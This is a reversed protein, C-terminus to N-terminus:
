ILTYIYSTQYPAAITFPPVALDINTDIQYDGVSNGPAGNFISMADITSTVTKVSGIGIGGTQGSNVIVSGPTNTFNDAVNIVAGNAQAVFDDVTATLTWGPNSLRTDIVQIPDIDTSTNTVQNSVTISPLTVSEPVNLILLGDSYGFFVDTSQSTYTIFQTQINGGTTSNGPPPSSINLRYTRGHLLGDFCLPTSTSITSAFIVTGDENELDILVGNILTDSGDFIGNASVDQFVVPCLSALYNCRFDQGARVEADSLTLQRLGNAPNLVDCYVKVSITNAKPDSITSFDSSSMEVNTGYDGIDVNATASFDEDVTTQMQYEIYGAANNAFFTNITNSSSLTAGGGLVSCDPTFTANNDISQVFIEKEGSTQNCITRHIYRNGALTLTNTSSLSAGGGLVSCDPTFTSNNDVLNEIIEIETSPFQCITQHLYKNGLTSLSTYDTFGSSTAVSACTPTFISSNNSSQIFVEPNGSIQSCTVIHLFENKGFYFDGTNATDAIEYFGSGPTTTINLGSVQSDNLPVCTDSDILCNKLTGPLYTFESNPLTDNITTNTAVFSSTNAYKLRVTIVDAPAVVINEVEIDNEVYVKNISVTGNEYTTSIANVELGSFAQILFTVVFFISVFRVGFRGIFRYNNSNIFNKLKNTMYM